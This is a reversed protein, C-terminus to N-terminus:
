CCSGDTNLCESLEELDELIGAIRQTRASPLFSKNAGTVEQYEGSFLDEGPTWSKPRSDKTSTRSIEIRQVDLIKGAKKGDSFSVSRKHASEDSLGPTVSATRRDLPRPTEHEILYSTKKKMASVPTAANRMASRFPKAPGSPVPPIPTHFVAVQPRTGYPFQYADNFSPKSVHNPPSPTAALPPQPMPSSAKAPSSAAESPSDEVEPPVCAAFNVEEVLEDESSDSAFTRDADHLFASSTQQHPPISQARESEERLSDMGAFVDISEESLQSTTTVDPADGSSVRSPGGEPGPNAQKVWRMQQKDFVMRGIREPLGHVDSPGIRTMVTPPAAGRHKVFSTSTATATAATSSSVYRNLDDPPPAPQNRLSPASDGAPMAPQVTVSSDATSVHSSSTRPLSGNLRGSGASSPRSPRGSGLRPLQGSSSAVPAPPLVSLRAAESPLPALEDDSDEEEVVKRIEEAASLRRLLKRPSPGSRRKSTPIALHAPLRVEGGSTSGNEATSTSLVRKPVVPSAEVGSASDSVARAKIRQM